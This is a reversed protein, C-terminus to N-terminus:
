VGLCQEPLDAVDGPGAREDQLPFLVIWLSLSENWAVCPTCSPAPILLGPKTDLAKGTAKGCMCVRFHVKEVHLELSFSFGQGQFM